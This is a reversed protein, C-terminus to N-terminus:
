SGQNQQPCAEAVVTWAGDILACILLRNKDGAPAPFPNYITLSRGWSVLENSGRDRYYQTATGSGLTLVGPLTGGAAPIPGSPLFYQVDVTPGSWHIAQGGPVQTINIPPTAQLRGLGEVARELDNIYQTRILAGRVARRFLKTFM